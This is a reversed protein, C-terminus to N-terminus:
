TQSSFMLLHCSADALRKSKAWDRMCFTSGSLGLLSLKPFLQGKGLSFASAGMLSSEKLVKGKVRVRIRYTFHLVARVRAKGGGM